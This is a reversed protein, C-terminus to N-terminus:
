DRGFKTASRATPRSSRASRRRAESPLLEEIEKLMPQMGLREASEHAEVLLRRGRRAASNGPLALARALAVQCRVIDPAWDMRSSMALASELHAVAEEHRDLFTALQGLHLSVPGRHFGLRNLACYERFPELLEYLLKARPADELGIAIEALCALAHLYSLERPVDDFGTSALSEFSLKAEAPLGCAWLLWARSAQFLPQPSAWLWQSFLHPGIRLLHEFGSQARGWEVLYASRYLDGYPLALRQADAHLEDFALKADEFRGEGFAVTAALRKFM